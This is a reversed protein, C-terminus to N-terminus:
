ITRTDANPKTVQFIGHENDFSKHWNPLLKDVMRNYLKQRSPEDATFYLTEINYLQLMNKMIQVVTSFVKIENGTNTIKTTGKGSFEVEWCTPDGYAVTAYFMYNVGDINFKVLVNERDYDEDTIKVPKDFLETILM